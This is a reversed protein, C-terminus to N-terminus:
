EHKGNKQWSKTDLTEDNSKSNHVMKHFYSYFYLLNDYEGDYAGYMLKHASVVFAHIAEITALYTDPMDDMNHRWYVTKREHLRVTKLKALREDTVISYCQNWTSDIFIVKDFMFDTLVATLEKCSDNEEARGTLKFKKNETELLDEDAKRKVGTKILSEFCENLCVANKNPFLLIAEEKSYDPIMPYMYIKVDDPALLAAHIATSKGDVEKKHKIIDIKFPLKLCPVLSTDIGKTYIHCKYCFYMRSAGCNSCKSRKLGTLPDHSDISYSEFVKELSNKM